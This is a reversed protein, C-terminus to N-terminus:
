AMSSTIRVNAVGTVTSASTASQLMGLALPHTTTVDAGTAVGTASAGTLLGLTLLLALNM